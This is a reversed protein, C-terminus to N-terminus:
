GAFWTSRPRCARPPSCPPPPWRPPARTPPHTTDHPPPIGDLLDAFLVLPRGRTETEAQGALVLTDAPVQTVFERLLRTKGIGPEGAILAIRPAGATGILGALQDLEASRGVM